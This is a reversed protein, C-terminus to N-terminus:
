AASRIGRKWIWGVAGLGAAVLLPVGPPGMTLLVLGTMAAGILLALGWQFRWALLPEILLLGLVSLALLRTLSSQGSDYEQWANSAGADDASRIALDVDPLLTTQLTEQSVPTLDSERPDVNVAFLESHNLPAGCQFEYVGSRDVPELAAAVLGGREQLTLPQSTGDPRKLTVSMDFLQGAWAATLPDGVLKQRNQWRGSIAFQVCEHMVPVFGPAWVAWTGWRDDASTAALIVRGGAIAKEVLAPSGDSFWLATAADPAPELTLFKLTQTDELGAGPNGQFVKLLPHVFERPDFSFGTESSPAQRLEGIRAPLIGEGDRYLARNYSDANILEGPFVILGGGSRVFSELLGAEHGTLLGVNCLIVADYRSLSTSSLESEPIVQPKLGGPPLGDSTVPALAQAVYFSASEYRRGAPRGDVILVRTEDRVPVTLWRHNDLELADQPLRVEIRHHGAERFPVSWDVIVDVAPPLEVRRTEELRGNVSLEVPLDRLTTTSFNHLVSRVPLPRDLRATGDATVQTVAANLAGAGATNILTIRATESLERAAAALRQRAEPDAPAWMTSQMDTLFVIEKRPIQPLMRTLEGIAGLASELDGPAETATLANLEQQVIDTQFSPEGIIVFPEGGAIRVLQWADGRSAQDLLNKAALKAQDFRTGTANLPDPMDPESEGAGSVDRSQMSFSADLVLIRHTPQATRILGGAKEFGPGALALVLLAILLTRILLLILNEMRMRRSQRRTAELLFRMAAWPVEVYRRRHLLHILVPVAALVLGATLWPTAFGFALLMASSNSEPILFCELNLRGSLCLM